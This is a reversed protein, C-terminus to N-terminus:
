HMRSALGSPGAEDAAAQPVVRARQGAIDRWQQLARRVSERVPPAFGTGHVDVFGLNDVIRVLVADREPGRATSACRGLSAYAVMLVTTSALLAEAFDPQPHPTP